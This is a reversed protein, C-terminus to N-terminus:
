DIVIEAKVAEIKSDIDAVVGDLQAEVKKLNDLVQGYKEALFTRAADEDVKAKELLPITVFAKGNEGIADEAFTIGSDSVKGTSGYSIGFYALGDENELTLKEPAYKSVKKLDATSVVTSLIASNGAIKLKAM